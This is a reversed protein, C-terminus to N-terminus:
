IVRKLITERAFPISEEIELTDLKEKILIVELADKVKRALGMDNVRIGEEDIIGREKYEEIRKELQDIENLTFFTGSRRGIKDLRVFKKEGNM